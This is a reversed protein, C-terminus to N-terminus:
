INVTIESFEKVCGLPINGMKFELLSYELCPKDEKLDFDRSNFIYLGLITVIIVLIISIVMITKEEIKM